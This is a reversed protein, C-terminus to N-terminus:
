RSTIVFNPEIKAGYHTRHFWNLSLIFMKYLHSNCSDLEMNRTSDLSLLNPKASASCSCKWSPSEDSVIDDAELTVNVVCYEDSEIVLVEQCSVHIVLLVLSFFVMYKIAQTRKFTLILKENTKGERM